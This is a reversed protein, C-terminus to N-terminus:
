CILSCNLGAIRDPGEGGTRIIRDEPSGNITAVAEVFEDLDVVCGILIDIRRFKARSLNQGVQITYMLSIHRALQAIIQMIRDDVAITNNLQQLNCNKVNITRNNITITIFYKYFVEKFSVKNNM